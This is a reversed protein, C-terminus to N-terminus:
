YPTLGVKKPAGVLLHSSLQTWGRRLRKEQGWSKRSDWTDSDQLCHKPDPSTQQLCAMPAALATSLSM